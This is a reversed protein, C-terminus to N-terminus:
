VFLSSYLMGKRDRDGVNRTIAILMIWKGRAHLLGEGLDGSFSEDPPALRKSGEPGGGGQGGENAGPEAGRNIEGKM